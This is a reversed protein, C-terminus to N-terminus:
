EDNEWLYMQVRNQIIRAVDEESKQGQFYEQAEEIVIQLIIEDQNSTFRLGEVIFLLQEEDEKTIERFEKVNAFNKTEINKMSELLWDKRTPFADMFDQKYSLCYEM